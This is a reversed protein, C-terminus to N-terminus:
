VQVGLRARSRREAAGPRRPHRVEPQWVDAQCGPSVWLNWTDVYSTSPGLLPQYTLVSLLWTYSIYTSSLRPKSPLQLFHNARRCICQLLGLWTPGYRNVYIILSNKHTYIYVHAHTYTYKCICPRVSLPLHEPM